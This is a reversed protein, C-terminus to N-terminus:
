NDNRSAFEPHQHQTVHPRQRSAQHGDSHFMISKLNDLDFRCRRCSSGCLLASSPLAAPPLAHHRLHPKPSTSAFTAAKYSLRARALARGCAKKPVQTHTLWTHKLMELGDQSDPFHHDSSLYNQGITCTLEQLWFPKDLSM